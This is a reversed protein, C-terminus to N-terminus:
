RPQPQNIELDPPEVVALKRESQMEPSTEQSMLLDENAIRLEPSGEDTFRQRNYEEFLGDRDTKAGSEM